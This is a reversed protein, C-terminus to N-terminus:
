IDALVNMKDFCLYCRPPTFRGKCWHRISQKVRIINGSTDLIGVDGPWGGLSKDKYRISVVDHRPKDSKLILFDMACFTMVRECILGIKIFGDARNQPMNRLGHFHCALGVIATRSIQVKSIYRLISNLAVPCYKSGQTSLLESPTTAVISQPRLLGDQPMRTVIARDIQGMDMLYSLLATAIGGSQGSQLIRSDSAQGCYAAIVPGVFPDEGARLSGETLHDGPCVRYCLGCENCSSEDIEALLLGGPSETMTIAQQPCISVCTGCSLCLHQAVVSNITRKPQSPSM